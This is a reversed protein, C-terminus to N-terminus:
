LLVTCLLPATPFLVNNLQKGRGGRRRVQYSSDDPRRSGKWALSKTAAHIQAMEQCPRGTCVAPVTCSLAVWLLLAAQVKKERPSQMRSEDCRRPDSGPDALGPLLWCNSIGSLRFLLCAVQKELKALNEVFTPKEVPAPIEVGALIRDDAQNEAFALIEWDAQNEAFALIEWDAQNEAFVWDAQNERAALIQVYKWYKIKRCEKNLIRWYEM